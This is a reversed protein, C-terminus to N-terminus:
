ERRSRCHPHFGQRSNSLSESEFYFSLLFVSVEGGYCVGGNVDGELDLKIGPSKLSVVLYALFDPFSVALGKFPNEPLVQQRLPSLAM